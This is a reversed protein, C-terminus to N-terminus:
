FKRFKIYSSLWEPTSKLIRKYFYGLSNVFTKPLKDVQKEWFAVLFEHFSEIKGLEIKSPQMFAHVSKKLERFDDKFDPRKTESSNPGKLVSDIILNAARKKSPKNFGNGKMIMYRPHWYYKYFIKSFATWFGGISDLLFRNYALSPHTFMKLDKTTVTKGYAAKYAAVFLSMPEYYIGTSMSIKFKSYLFKCTKSVFWEPQNKLNQLILIVIGMSASACTGFQGQINEICHDKNEITLPPVHNTSVALWTGLTKETDHLLKKIPVYANRCKKTTETVTSTDVNHRRLTHNNIWHYVTSVAHNCEEGTRKKYSDDEYAFSLSTYVVVPVRGHTYSLKLTRLLSARHMDYRKQNEFDITKIYYYLFPPLGLEKYWTRLFLFALSNQIGYMGGAVKKFSCVENKMNRFYDDVNTLIHRSQRELMIKLNEAVDARREKSRQEESTVHRVLSRVAPKSKRKRTRPM